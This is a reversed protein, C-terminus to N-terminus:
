AGRDNGADEFTTVRAIMEHLKDKEIRVGKSLLRKRGLEAADTVSTRMFQQIEDNGANSIAAPVAVAIITKKQKKSVKATLLGEFEPEILATATHYVVNVFYDVDKEKRERECGRMVIKCHEDFNTADPGTIMGISIM